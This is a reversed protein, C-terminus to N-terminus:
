YNYEAHIIISDGAAWVWPLTAQVSGQPYAVTDSGVLVTFGDYQIYPTNSADFIIRGTATAAGSSNLLRTYGLQPTATIPAVPMPFTYYGTGLTTTSGITLAIDVIYRDGKRHWSGSLSGNGITPQTGSSVWSPTFDVPVTDYSNATSGSNDIIPPNNYVMDGLHIYNTGTGLIVQPWLTVGTITNGSGKITMTEGAAGRIRGGTIHVDATNDSFKYGGTYSNTVFFSGGGLDAFLAGDTQINAYTHPAAGGGSTSADVLKVSYNGPTTGNLRDIDGCVWSDQSGSSIDTYEIAYGASNIIRFDRGKQRNTNAPIVVNRGTYNAGDGELTLDVIQCGTGMTLLDGNFHKQLITSESGSGYLVQGTGCNLMSAIFFTGAGINVSKGTALAFNITAYDSANVRGDITSEGGDGGSGGGGGGGQEAKENVQQVMKVVRDFSKEITKASFPAGNAWTTTQTLPLARYIKLTQGTALAIITTVVHGSEDLSRTILRLSGGSPNAAGTLTYDVNEVLTHVSADADTRVAVIETNSDFTFSFTFPGTSGTGNFTASTNTITVTAYASPVMFLFLAVIIFRKM